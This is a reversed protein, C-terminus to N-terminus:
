AAERDNEIIDSLKYTNTHAELKNNGNTEKMNCNNKFNNAFCYHENHNFDNKLTLEISNSNEFNYELKSSEWKDWHCLSEFEDMSELKSKYNARKLAKIENSYNNLDEYEFGYDDLIKKFEDNSLSDFFAEPNDLIRGM